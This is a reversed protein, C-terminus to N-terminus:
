SSDGAVERAPIFEWPDRARINWGREVNIPLHGGVHEMLETGVLKEKQAVREQRGQNIEM